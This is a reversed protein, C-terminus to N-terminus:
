WMRCLDIPAIDLDTFLKKALAPNSSEVVKAFLQADVDMQVARPSFYPRLHTDMMSLFTWFADEDPSFLLLHGALIALGIM